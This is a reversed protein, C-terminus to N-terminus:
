NLNIDPTGEIKVGASSGTIQVKESGTVEVTKSSVSVQDNEFKAYTSGFCVYTSDGDIHIHGKNPVVLRISATSTIETYGEDGEAKVRIKPPGELTIGEEAKGLMEGQTELLVGDPGEDEGEGSSSGLRMRSEKMPTHLRIKELGEKDALHVTNGSRTLIMNDSSNESTVPSRTSPNPLVGAVVPRDPDGDMCLIAVETGEHLPFHQGERAGGHPQLMRIRKTARGRERGSLDYHLRVVYRGEEDVDPYDGGASEVVGTLFGSVRPQPTVREPRFVRDSPIAEFRNRYSAGGEREQEGFVAESQDGEHQVAIVAYAGDLPDAEGDYLRFDYAHGSRLNRITSEGQLVRSRALFGEALTRGLRKGEAKTKFHLGYEYHVGRTRPAQVLEETDLSLNERRYNYDVIVIREPVTTATSSVDDLVEEEEPVGGESPRLRYSTGTRDLYKSADDYFCLVERDAGHEFFYFIGERECLRHIFALDSEHYQVKFDMEEYSAQLDFRFDQDLVFGHDEQLIETVIQQVTQEQFIRTQYQHETASRLLPVVELQYLLHEDHRGTRRVEDVVGPFYVTDKDYDAQLTVRHQLLDEVSREPAAVAVTIRYSYPASIEERGHWEVVELDPDREMGGDGEVLLHYPAREGASLSELGM